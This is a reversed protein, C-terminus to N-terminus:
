VVIAFKFVSAQRSITSVFSFPKPPNIHRAARLLLDADRHRL